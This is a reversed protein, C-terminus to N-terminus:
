FPIDADYGDEDPADANNGSGARSNNGGGDYTDRGGGGGGSRRDDSGRDDKKAGSERHKYNANAVTPITHQLFMLNAKAAIVSTEADSMPTGDSKYLANYMTNGFPFKIRPRNKDYSVLSMWVVGDKKGVYITGQLKVDKSKERNFWVYDSYEMWVKHDGTEPFNIAMELLVLIRCFDTPPMQVRVSGKEDSPDNSYMSLGVQNGAYSWKLSAWKGKATSPASLSVRFDDLMNKPRENRPGSYGGGSRNNDYAM